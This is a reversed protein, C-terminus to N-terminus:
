TDRLRLAATSTSAREGARERDMLRRRWELLKERMQFRQAGDDGGGPQAAIGHDEETQETRRSRITPGAHERVARCLM